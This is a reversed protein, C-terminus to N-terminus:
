GRLTSLFEVVKDSAGQKGNARLKEEVTNNYNTNTNIDYVIINNNKDEIFEIGAIKIKHKELFERLNKAEKVHLSTM